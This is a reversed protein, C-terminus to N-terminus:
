GNKLFKKIKKNAAQISEYVSKQNTGEAEAIEWTSLGRVVNQIYRRQQVDTLKSLIKKALERRQEEKLIQDAQEIVTDEPSPVACLETEEIDHISVNKKRQANDKRDQHLYIDDSLNKLEIFDAETKGPSEKLYDKLTVEVTENAFRYVIGNAYKNAAYDSDQYNKM